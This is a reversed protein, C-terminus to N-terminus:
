PDFGAEYNVAFNVALHAGNPWRLDPPNGGYGIFDRKAKRPMWAKAPNWDALQIQFALVKAFADDTGTGNRWMAVTFRTTRDLVTLPHHSVDPGNAM